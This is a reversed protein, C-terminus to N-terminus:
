YMYQLILDPPGRLQEILQIINTCYVASHTYSTFVTCYGMHLAEKSFEADVRHLLGLKHALVHVTFKSISM